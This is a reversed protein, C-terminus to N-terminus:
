PTVPSSGPRSSGLTVRWNENSGVGIQSVARVVAAARAIIPTTALQATPRDTHRVWENRLALVRDDVAFARGGVVLTKTDDLEGATVRAARALRNLADADDRTAAFMQTEILGNEGTGVKQVDAPTPLSTFVLDCAQAVAKPSDAWTAGDNLHRSAAQRTLDNVVLEHGAKQLMLTLLQRTDTDDEAVLIHM